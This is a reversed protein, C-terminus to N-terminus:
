NEDSEAAAAVATEETPPDLKALKNKRYWRYALYLLGVWLFPIILGAALVVLGGLQKLLEFSESLGDAFGPLGGPDDAFLFVNGTTSVERAEVPSGDDNVPTATARAQGRLTRELEITTAMIFSDGPELPATPDGWAVALDEFDLDLVSDRVTFGSLLTDGANHFEFCVTVREGVLAGIEPSGSCSAGNDEIDHYATVSLALAPNSVTSTLTLTITSLSVADQLTRLQGRLVELNTERNLLQQEIEAITDIDGATTLFEKLREVSAEATSIRSQLDVVVDTVDNANISQTRVEGISGLAALAAQFNDPAIKFTLVTRANAGSTTSQGFVFGGLANVANTAETSAAAIDPVAVRIEATFIIDRGLDAVAVGDGTGGSGLTDGPAFADDDATAQTAAREEDEMAEFEGSLAAESAVTTEAFVAQETTEADEGSGCAIAVLALVAVLLVHKLPKTLTM